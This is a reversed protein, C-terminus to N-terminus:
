LKIKKKKGISENSMRDVATVIYTYKTDGSKYNLKLINDSTIAVIKSVDNTDIHDDPAFRYIVYKYAQDKWDKAKPAKWTLYYGDAYWKAKWPVHSKPPKTTM